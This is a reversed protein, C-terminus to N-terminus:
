LPKLIYTDVSVALLTDGNHLKSRPHLVSPLGDLEEVEVEWVIERGTALNM